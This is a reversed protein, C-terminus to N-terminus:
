GLLRRRWVWARGGDGWGVRAMDEVTCEKNVALDFHRPFKFHLPTNGVWHDFWFLTNCSDGVLRRINGEFWNGVGEGVGGRVDCLTRWWLSGHRGGEKLRGREESYRAKLVHYWLGEKDVLM